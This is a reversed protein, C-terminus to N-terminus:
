QKHLLIMGVVAAAMLGVIVGVFFSVLHISVM